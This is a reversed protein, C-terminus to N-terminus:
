YVDEVRLRSPSEGRAGVLEFEVEDYPVDESWDQHWHVANRSPSEGDPTVALVLRLIRPGSGSNGEYPQLGVTFGGGRVIVDGDVRLTKGMHDHIARWKEYSLEVEIAQHM